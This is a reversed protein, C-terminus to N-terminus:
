CHFPFKFLVWKPIFKHSFSIVCSCKLSFYPFVEKEMTNVMSSCSGAWFLKIKICSILPLLHLLCCLTKLLFMFIFVIIMLFFILHCLLLCKTLSSLATKGNLIMGILFLVYKTNKTAWVLRGAQSPMVGGATIAFKRQFKAVHIKLFLKSTRLTWIYM